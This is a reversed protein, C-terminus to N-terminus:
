TEYCSIGLRYMQLFAVVSGGGGGGGGSIFKAANWATTDATTVVANAWM